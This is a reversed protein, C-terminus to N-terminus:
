KVVIKQTRVNEGNVLRLVYVGAAQNLNIETNGSFNESRLVRGMMDVVQLTAEGINSVTWTSGNFYAFNESGTSTSEDASFVLRLVGKEGEFDYVAANERPVEKVSAFGCDTMVPAIAKYVASITANREM